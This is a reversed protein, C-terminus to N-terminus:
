RPLACILRDDSERRCLFAEIVRYGGRGFRYEEVLVRRGAGLKYWARISSLPAGTSSGSSSKAVKTIDIMPDARTYKPSAGSGAPDDPPAPGLKSNAFCFMSAPM